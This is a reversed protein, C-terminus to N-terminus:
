NKGGWYHYHADGLCYFLPTGCTSSYIESFVAVQPLPREWSRDILDGAILVLDLPHGNQKATKQLDTLATRFKKESDDADGAGTLHIDSIAAFSLVIHNDNFIM